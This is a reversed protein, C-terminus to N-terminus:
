VQVDTVENQDHIFILLATFKELDSIKKKAALSYIHVFFPVFIM